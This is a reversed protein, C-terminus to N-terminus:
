WPEQSLASSGIRDAMEVEEASEPMEQYARIYDRVAEAEREQKLLREVARRFFQSRSEGSAEREKELAKLLEEPLSIAVKSTGPM